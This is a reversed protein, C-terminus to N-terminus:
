GSLDIIINDILRTGGVKAAIAVLAKNEIGKINEVTEPDVIKVYDIEVHEGGNLIERMAEILVDCKREGEATMGQCKQLAKNLLIAEKRESANLYKNRSSIALGDEERVTPCVVIELPMNLDQVMQKITIAQQADKQGFFALDPQVINFLKTCVTAVGQFFIPRSLGCLNQTIKDVNVWSLNEQPYMENVAPSFIVDVGSDACKKVDGEIDRPYEDFDEAPGFQTPNVFISVVVFECRKVAADILSIHGAHLAGMTPVLGITKGEARARKIFERVAKITSAIEM